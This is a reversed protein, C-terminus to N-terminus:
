AGQLREKLAMLREVERRIVRHHNRNDVLSEEGLARFRTV